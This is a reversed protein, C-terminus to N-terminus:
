YKEKNELFLLTSIEDNSEIDFPYDVEEKMGISQLEEDVSNAAASLTFPTQKPVSGFFFSFLLLIVKTLSVNLKMKKM